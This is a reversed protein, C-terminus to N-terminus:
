PHQPDTILVHGSGDNSMVLSAAGYSGLLAINATNVGDTVSLTGGTNFANSTYGLTTNAGFAIDALDLCKGTALGVVKGTFEVSDDLRLMGTSGLQFGVRCRSPGFLEVESTGSIPM